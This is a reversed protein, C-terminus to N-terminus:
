GHNMYRSTWCTRTARSSPRTPWSCTGRPPACFCASPAHCGCRQWPRSRPVLILRRELRPVDRHLSCSSPGWSGHRVPAKM